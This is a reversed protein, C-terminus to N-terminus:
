LDNIPTEKKIEERKRVTRNEKKKLLNKPNIV